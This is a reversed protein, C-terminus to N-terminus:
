GMKDINLKSEKKDIIIIIIESIIIDPITPMKLNGKQDFSAGCTKMKKLWFVTSDLFVNGMKIKWIQKGEPKNLNPVM